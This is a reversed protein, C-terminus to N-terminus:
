LKLWGNIRGALSQRSRGLNEAKEWISLLTEDSIGTANQYNQLKAWLLEKSQDIEVGATLTTAFGFFKLILFIM